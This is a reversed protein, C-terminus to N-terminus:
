HQWTFCDKEDATPIRSFIGAQEQMRAACTSDLFLKAANTMKARAEVYMPKRNLGYAAANLEFNDFWNKVPISEGDLEPIIKL